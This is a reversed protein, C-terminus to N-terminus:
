PRASGKGRPHHKCPGRGITQRNDQDELLTYLTKSKGRMCQRFLLLADCSLCVKLEVETEVYIEYILDAHCREQHDRDSATNPLQWFAILIQQQGPTNERAASSFRAVSPWVVRCFLVRHKVSLHDCRRVNLGHEKLRGEGFLKPSKLYDGSM